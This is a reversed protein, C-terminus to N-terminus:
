SKRFPLYTLLRVTSSTVSELSLSKRSLGLDSFVLHRASDNLDDMANSRVHSKHSVQFVM